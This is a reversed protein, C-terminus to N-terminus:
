TTRSAASSRSDMSAVRSSSLSGSAWARMAWASSSISRPSTRSSACTRARSEARRDLDVSHAEPDHHGARGCPLQSLAQRLGRRGGGDLEQEAWQSVARVADTCRRARREGALPSRTPTPVAHAIAEVVGVADDVYEIDVVTSVDVAEAM